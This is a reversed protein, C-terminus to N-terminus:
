NAELNEGKQRRKIVDVITYIGLGVLALTVGITLTVIVINLMKPPLGTILAIHDSAQSLGTLIFSLVGGTGAKVALDGAPTETAKVESVSARAMENDSIDTAQQEVMHTIPNAAKIAMQKAIKRVESVRREWGNKFTPYNKLTRMFALRNDCIGDILEETDLTNIDGLDGFGITGDVPSIDAARQLWKTAQGPGSNVSADFVAYDVGAPLEDGWITDWYFRKYIDIYEQQTMQRVDRPVQRIAKRYGDYTRQTVGRFTSGGPDDPHNSYGGEHKALPRMAVAFNEKM